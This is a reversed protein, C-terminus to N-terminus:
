TMTDNDETSERIAKLVNRWGDISRPQKGRYIINSLMVLDDKNLREERVLARLHVPIESQGMNAIGPTDLGLMTEISIGLAGCLKIIIESTPNSFQENELQSLYAKSVKSRQALQSLTLRRKERVARLRNGLGM